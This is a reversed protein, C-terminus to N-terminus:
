SPAARRGRRRTGTPNQPLQACHGERDDLGRRRRRRTGASVAHRRSECFPLREALERRDRAVGLLMNSCSFESTFISLSSGSSRAASTPQPTSVPTPAGEPRRAEFGSLRHGHEAAAAHPQGDHLPARM